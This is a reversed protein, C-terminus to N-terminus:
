GTQKVYNVIPKFKLLILIMKCTACAEEDVKMLSTTLKILFYITEYCEASSKGELYSDILNDLEDLSIRSNAIREFEQKLYVPTTPNDTIFLCCKEIESLIKPNKNGNKEGIFVGLHISLLMLRDREKQLKIIKSAKENIRNGGAKLGEEFHNENSLKQKRKYVLSTGAIGVVLSGIGIVGTIIKGDIM